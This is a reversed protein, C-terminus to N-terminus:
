IWDSSYLCRAAQKEEQCVISHSVAPDHVSTIRAQNSSESRGYEGGKSVDPTLCRRRCSLSDEPQRVLFRGRSVCERQKRDKRRPSLPSTATQNFVCRHDAPLTNSSSRLTLNRTLCHTFDPLIDRRALCSTVGFRPLIDSCGKEYMM